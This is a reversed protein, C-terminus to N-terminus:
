SCRVRLTSFVVNVISLVVIFFDFVFRLVVVFFIIVSALRIVVVPFIVILDIGFFYQGVFPLGGLLLWVTNRLRQRKTM